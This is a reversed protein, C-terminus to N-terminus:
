YVWALPTYLHKQACQRNNYYIYVIQGQWSTCSVPWIHMVKHTPFLINHFTSLVPASISGLHSSAIPMIATSAPTTGHTFCALCVKHVLRAEVFTVHVDALPAAVIGTHVVTPLRISPLYPQTVSSGKKKM